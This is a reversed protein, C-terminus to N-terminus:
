FPPWTPNACAQIRASLAADTCASLCAQIQDQPLSVCYQWHLENDSPVAREAAAVSAFTSLVLHIVTSRM